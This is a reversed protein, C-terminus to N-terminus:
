IVVGLLSQPATQTSIHTLLDRLTSSANLPTRDFRLEDIAQVLADRYAVPMSAYTTSLTVGPVVLKGFGRGDFRQGIRFMAILARLTQRWTAGGVVWQAPINFAELKNRVTTVNAAGVTNDLNSPVTAVDSQGSLTTNQGGTVDAGILAVPELGYDLLSWSLPAV